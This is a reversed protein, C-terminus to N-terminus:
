LWTVFHVNLIRKFEESVQCKVDIIKMHFRERIANSWRIVIVTSFRSSKRRYLSLGTQIFPQHGFSSGLQGFQPFNSFAGFQLGSSAQQPQVNQRSPSQESNNQGGKYFSQMAAELNPQTDQGSPQTQWPNNQQPGSFYTGQFSGALFEFLDRIFTKTNLMSLYALLINCWFGQIVTDLRHTYLAVFYSSCFCSLM